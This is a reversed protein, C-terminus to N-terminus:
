CFGVVGVKGTSEPHAPLYSVAASLNAVTKTADLSGTM